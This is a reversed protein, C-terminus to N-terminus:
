DYILGNFVSIKLIVWGLLGPLLVLMLGLWDIWRKKKLVRNIAFPLGLAFSLCATDFVQPMWEDTVNVDVHVVSYFPFSSYFPLSIYIVYGNAILGLILVVVTWPFAPAPPQEDLSTHDILYVRTDDAYEHGCYSCTKM